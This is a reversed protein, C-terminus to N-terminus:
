DRGGGDRGPRLLGSLAELFRASLPAKEDEVAQWTLSGRWSPGVRFSGLLADMVEESKLEESANLHTGSKASPFWKLSYPGFGEGVASLYAGEDSILVFQRYGHDRHREWEAILDRETTVDRRDPTLVIM